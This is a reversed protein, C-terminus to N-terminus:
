FSPFVFHICKRELIQTFPDFVTQSWFCVLLDQHPQGCVKPRSSVVSPHINQGTPKNVPPHASFDSQKGCVCGSLDDLFFLVSIVLVYKTLDGYNTVGNVSFPMLTKWSSCSRSPSRELSSITGTFSKSLSNDLTILVSVCPSAGTSYKLPSEEVGPAGGLFNWGGVSRQPPPIYVFM